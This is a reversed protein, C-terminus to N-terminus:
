IILSDGENRRIFDQMKKTARKMRNDTEDVRNGLDDLMRIILEVVGRLRRAAKPLAQWM